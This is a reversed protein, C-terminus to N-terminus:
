KQTPMVQTPRTPFLFDGNGFYKIYLDRYRIMAGGLAMQFDDPTNASPSAQQAWQMYQWVETPLGNTGSGKTDAVYGLGPTVVRTLFLKEIHKLVCAYRGSPTQWFVAM